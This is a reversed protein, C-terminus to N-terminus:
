AVGIYDGILPRDLGLVEELVYEGRRQGGVLDDGLDYERHSVARVLVDLEPAAQEVPGDHARGRLLHVAVPADAQRVDTRDRHARLGDLVGQVLAGLWLLGGLMRRIPEAGRAVQPGARPVLLVERPHQRLSGYFLPPLYSRFGRRNGGM